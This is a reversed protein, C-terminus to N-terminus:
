ICAVFTFPSQIHCLWTTAKQLGRPLTSPAKDQVEEKASMRSMLIAPSAESFPGFAPTFIDCVAQSNPSQTWIRGSKM